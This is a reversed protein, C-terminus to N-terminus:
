GTSAAAAACNLAMRSFSASRTAFASSRGAQFGSLKKLLNADARARHIANGQIPPPAAHKGRVARPSRGWSAWVHSELQTTTQSAFEKGSEGAGHKGGHYGAFVGLM